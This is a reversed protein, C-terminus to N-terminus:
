NRTLRQQLQQREILKRDVIQATVIYAITFQATSPRVVVHHSINLIVKDAKIAQRNLETYLGELILEADPMDLSVERVRIWHTKEPDYQETELTM